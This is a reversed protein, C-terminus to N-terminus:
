TVGSLRVRNTFAEEIANQLCQGLPSNHLQISPFRVRANNPMNPFRSAARLIAINMHVKQGTNRSLVGFLSKLLM